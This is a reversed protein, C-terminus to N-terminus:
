PSGPPGMQCYADCGCGYRIEHDPYTGVVTVTPVCCFTGFCTWSMEDEPPLNMLQYENDGLDDNAIFAAFSSNRFSDLQSRPIFFSTSRAYAVIRGEGTESATLFILAAIGDGPDYDKVSDVTFAGSWGLQNKIIDRIKLILASEDDAIVFESSSATFNTSLSIRDGLDPRETQQCSNFVSFAVCLCLAPFLRKM